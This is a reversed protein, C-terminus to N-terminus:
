KIVDRLLILWNWTFIQRKKKNKCPAIERWPTLVTWINALSTIGERPLLISKEAGFQFWINLSDILGPFSPSLPSGPIVPGCPVYNLASVQQGAYCSSSSPALLERAVSLYCVRRGKARPVERARVGGQIVRVQMSGESRSSFWGLYQVCTFLGEFELEKGNWENM